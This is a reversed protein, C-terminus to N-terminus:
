SHRFIWAEHGRLPEHLVLFHELGELASVAGLGGARGEELAPLTVQVAPAALHVVLDDLAVGAFLSEHVCWVERQVVEDSEDCNGALETTPAARRKHEQVCPQLVLGEALKPRDVALILLVAACCDKRDLVHTPVVLHAREGVVGVGVNEGTHGGPLLPDLGWVKWTICL